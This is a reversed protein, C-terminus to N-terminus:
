PKRKRKPMAILPAALREHLAFLYEVRQRDSVFPQVRYCREVARDLNTHANMLKPPMAIPDYLEAPTSSKYEAKAALVGQAGEEVSRLSKSTLDQPWPFNNYVLSASYRYDSKIRGCVQRVWAMHMGSSLVGFHFLSADALFLCSDSVIYEPTFYSMPIYRRSESSHRPILVYSSSPQRIEGFLSPFDALKNTAPRDSQERYKRVAIVRRNIEPIGRIEQPSADTLWLCWRKEGNLYENSSLIERVFPRAEPVDDLLTRKEDDTLLLNGDDNPMNGFRM